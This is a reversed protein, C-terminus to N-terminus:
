VRKSDAVTNSLRPSQVLVQAPAEFPFTAQVLPRLSRMLGVSPTPTPIYRPTQAWEVDFRRLCAGCRYQGYIPWMPSDHMLRCWIRGINETITKM